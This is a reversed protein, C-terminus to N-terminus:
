KTGWLYIHDFNIQNIHIAIKNKLTYINDDEFINEYIIKVDKEKITKDLLSYNQFHKKLIKIEDDTISKDKLKKILKKHSDGVFLYTIKDKKSIWNVIKFISTKM